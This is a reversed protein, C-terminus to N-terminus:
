DERRQRAVEYLVLSAAVAANLSEVAESMPISITANAEHEVESPLGAGESGIFLAIPGRLDGSSAAIAVTDSGRRRTTAIIKIQHMKLQALLIPAAMGRLLPLRLASGASARIGKPSWPDTTGRTTVAGTAGFAEASRLIAGVNGPDQIGALAIILPAGVRYAGGSGPRGRLVGDIGWVPQRFLAAVGQPAETGAVSEFMKDSTKLVRDRSIGADSEGAARLIQELEREGTASILLAEAELGSRVAEEVLKPGEVGIFEGEGPGTGSLATRFLKLWKNDKSMIVNSPPDARMNAAEYFTVGMKRKGFQKDFRQTMACAYCVGRQAYVRGSGM